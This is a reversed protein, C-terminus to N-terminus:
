AKSVKPEKISEKDITSSNTNKMKCNGDFVANEDVILTKVEVDGYLKATNGLRLHENCKINGHIIGSIFINNGEINGTIKGDAGITINGDVVIDGEVEGDVRIAGKAEIKGSFKTNKGILTDIKDINHENKKFM